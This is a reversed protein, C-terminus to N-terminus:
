KVSDKDLLDGWIVKVGEERLFPGILKRNKASPRLLLVLEFRDRRPWLERFAPLGMTGSAGTILVREKRM